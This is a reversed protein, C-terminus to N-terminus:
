MFNSKPRKGENKVGQGASLSRYHIKHILATEAIARAKKAQKMNALYKSFVVEYHVILETLM